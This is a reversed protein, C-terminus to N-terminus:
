RLVLASHEFGAVLDGDDAQGALVAEDSQLAMDLVGALEDQGLVHGQVVQDRRPAAELVRGEALIGEEIGGVDEALDGPREAFLDNGEVQARQEVLVGLGIQREFLAIHHADIGIVLQGLRLDDM